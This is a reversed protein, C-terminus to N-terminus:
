LVLFADLLVDGRFPEISRLFSNKNQMTGNARSLLGMKGEITAERQRSASPFHQIPKTAQNDTSKIYQSEWM